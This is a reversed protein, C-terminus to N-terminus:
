FLGLAAEISVWVALATTAVLIVNEALNAKHEGLQARRNTLILLGIAVIPVVVAQLGMVFITMAVFGPMGPISWIIPTVLIFLSFWKFTPDDAFESGYKERREPRINQLCDVVVKPLGRAYGVISSYLIGCAGVYFVVAGFHGLHISLAM